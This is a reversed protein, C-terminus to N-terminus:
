ITAPPKPIVEYTWLGFRPDLLRRRPTARSAVGDLVGKVGEGRCELAADRRARGPERHAV